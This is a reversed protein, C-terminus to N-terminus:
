RRYWCLNAASAAKILSAEQSKRVKVLKDKGGYIATSLYIHGDQWTCQNTPDHLYTVYAERRYVVVGTVILAVMVIFGIILRQRKM